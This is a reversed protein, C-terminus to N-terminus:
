QSNKRVEQAEQVLKQERTKTQELTRRLQRMEGELQQVVAGREEEVRMVAERAEEEGARTEGLQQRLQDM